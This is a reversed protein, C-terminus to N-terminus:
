FDERLGVIYTDLASFINGNNSPGAKPYHILNLRTTLADTRPEIGADESPRYIFCHQFCYRVQDM